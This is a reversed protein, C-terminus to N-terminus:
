RLSDVKPGQESTPHGGGVCSPPVAARRTFDLTTGGGRLSPAARVAGGFKM